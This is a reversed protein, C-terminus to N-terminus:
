EIDLLTKLVGCDAQLKPIEQLYNILARLLFIKSKTRASEERLLAITKLYEEQDELDIKLNKVTYEMQRLLFQIKQGKLRPSEPDAQMGWGLAEMNFVPEPKRELLGKVVSDLVNAIFVALKKSDVMPEHYRCKYMYEFLFGKVLSTLDGIYDEVKNGYLDLFFEKNWLNLKLETREIREAIENENKLYLKIDLLDKGTDFQSVNMGESILRLTRSLDTYNVLNQDLAQKNVQFELAYREIGFNDQVDYTGKVGAVLGKVQESLARLKELDDGVLRISVPKGVPPGAQPLEPVVSIGPYMEKFKETWNDITKEVDMKGEEGIVALQGVTPGESPLTGTSSFVQPATGGAASTVKKVGPQKQAWKAIETVQRNTEQLSTGVPMEIKVTFQPKDESPFLEVPTFPVLGYALTGVLLGVLGTFLPRQLVKPMIKGSYIHTLVHIQKGLLGAPKNYGDQGRRNRKEYWERFIPIITLSMIMSALMSLTIVTPIPKIFSGMDGKLFMLPLLRSEM